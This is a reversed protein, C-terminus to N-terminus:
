GISDRCVGFVACRSSVVDSMKTALRAVAVCM